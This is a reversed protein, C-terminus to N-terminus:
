GIKSEKDKTNQSILLEQNKSANYDDVYQSLILECLNARSRKQEKAIKDLADILEQETRILIQPKTSPM